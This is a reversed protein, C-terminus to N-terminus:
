KPAGVTKKPQGNSEMWRNGKFDADAVSFKPLPEEDAYVRGDRLSLAHAIDKDSPDPFYSIELPELKLNDPPDGWFFVVVNKIHFYTNRPQLFIKYQVQVTEEIPEEPLLMYVVSIGKDKDQRPIVIANPSVFKPFFFFRTMHSSFVQKVFEESSSLTKQQAQVVGIADTLQGQMSAIQPRLQNVAELETRAHGAETRVSNAQQSLESKLHSTQQIADTAQKNVQTSARTSAETARKSAADINQESSITSQQIQQKSSNATAEVSQKAKDVGSWLDSAKWFIGAGLIAVLVAAISLVTKVWGWAKEFVKISSETELVSRDRVATSLEESVKRSLFDGLKLPSGCFGCFTLNDPNEQECGFCRRM